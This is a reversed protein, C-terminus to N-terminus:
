NKVVKLTYVQEDAKIWVLYIGKPLYTVDISREWSDSNLSEYIKETVLWGEITLVKIEVSQVDDKMKLFLTGQNPNPYVIVPRQIFPKEIVGIACQNFNFIITINETNFCNTILNTATVSYNQIENWNGNTKAVLYRNTWLNSWLYNMEPPNTEHGADLMVTDHVCAFISDPFVEIYGEPILDVIPLEHVTVIVQTNYIDHGDNIELFYTTTEAPTIIISEDSATWGPEKDNTWIYSYNGSGGTANAHVTTTDGVCIEPPYAQPFAELIESTEILVYTPESTCNYFDSVQLSYYQANSLIVTEPNEIDDPGNIMSDPEWDYIYPPTGEYASGDLITSTGTQIIQDEGAEALPMKLEIHFNFIQPDAINNCLDHVSNSDTLSLSYDGNLQLRPTFYVTFQEEMEGGIDCIEGVIDNITYPGGPGTFSFDDVQVSSCLVQESFDFTIKDTGCLLSDHYVTSIEPSVDDYIVATSPTFDLLYGYQSTSYNSINIVYTEGELVPIKANHPTGEGSQCDEESNGNPGTVGKESSFNCSVQMELINDFIDQCKYSNLSYVAWDYDDTSDNPTINFSLLGETQTTVIYWVDNKEGDRLCNGPCSGSTPIENLYNGEGIYANPQYFTDQCVPIAGLCDQETPIQAFIMLSSFALYLTLLVKLM